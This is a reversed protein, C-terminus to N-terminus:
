NKNKNKFKNAGKSSSHNFCVDALLDISGDLTTADSDDENNDNEMGDKFQDPRNM